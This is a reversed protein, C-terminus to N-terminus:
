LINKMEQVANELRNNHNEIIKVTAGTLTAYAIAAARNMQQHLDIEKLMEIDRTRTEDSIRRMFIEEPDAEILVFMDPQLEELVWQPLGPLFGTPTKITCHTDVIINTEKSRERISKAAAKQIKKQKEPSLKRLQDRDEVLGESKAIELMVDGYNVNIYDLDELAHKLVTTSGSGPIGAVVVVKM